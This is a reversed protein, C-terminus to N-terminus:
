RAEGQELQELQHKAMGMEQTLRIVRETLRSVVVTLHLILMLCVMIGVLFLLAPAYKVGLLAATGELLRTNLSFVFLVLCFLLWLLSYQERLYRKRMLHLVAFLLGLSLAMSM